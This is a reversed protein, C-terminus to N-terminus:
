CTRPQRPCTPGTTQLLRRLPQGDSEWVLHPGGGPFLRSPNASSPTQPWEPSAGTDTRIQGAVDADGPGDRRRPPWGRLLRRRRPAEPWRPPAPPTGLAPPGWGPRSPAPSRVERVETRVVSATPPRQPFVPRADTAPPRVSFILVPSTDHRRPAASSPASAAPVTPREASFTLPRHPEVTNSALREAGARRGTWGRARRPCATALGHYMSVARCRGARGGVRGPCARRGAGLPAAVAARTEPPPAM